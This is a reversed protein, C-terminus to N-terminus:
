RGFYFYMKEREFTVNMKAYCDEARRTAASFCAGDQLLRRAVTQLVSSISNGLFSVVPIKEFEYLLSLVNM